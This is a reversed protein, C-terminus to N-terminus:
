QFYQLNGSKEEKNELIFKSISKQGKSFTQMQNQILALIDRSMM